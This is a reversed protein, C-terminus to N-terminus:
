IGAEKIDYFMKKLQIPGKTLTRKIITAIQDSTHGNGYPNTTDALTSQFDASLVRRVASEIAVRDCPCNVVSSAQMRGRQRDGINVTPVRFSPAEIIGSSSNGIVLAAHKMASLYRRTGLSSVALVRHRHDGAYTDIAENLRRGGADAGSKTFIVRLNPFADLAASLEHFATEVEQNDLTAPHFTAVAYPANLSFNLSKELEERNLLPETLANEVGTAGVDFVRDPQEGLQIVRRRHTANSTFHLYSMKTIAHRMAEDIAGETTEGGHLHAIPIRANTAACCVALTEYRDGLVVLMDYRCAAFHEGFHALTAAMTRSMGLSSDEENVIPIRAAITFGDQEIEEVTYGFAAELHTGTVLVSVQLGPEKTLARIVPRLLGYEARTSTLVAITHKTM